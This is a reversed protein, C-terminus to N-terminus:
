GIGALDQCTSALKQSTAALDQGTAAVDTSGRTLRAFAHDSALQSAFPFVNRMLMGVDTGAPALGVNGSRPRM